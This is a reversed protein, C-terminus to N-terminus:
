KPIHKFCLLCPQLTQFIGKQLTMMAIVPEKKNLLFGGPTLWATPVTETPVDAQKATQFLVTPPQCLAAYLPSLKTPGDQFIDPDAPWM